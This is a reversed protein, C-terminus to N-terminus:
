VPPELIVLRPLTQGGGATTVNLRYEGSGAFFGARITYEVGAELRIKILSNLGQGGDDDYAIVNGQNDLLWLFPDVNANANTTYIIWYTTEDPIFTFDAEQVVQRSGQTLIEYTPSIHLYVNESRWNAWAEIFYYVDQALHLTIIGSHWEEVWFSGSKDSLILERWDDWDDWDGTLEITWSGTTDPSFLFEFEDEVPIIGGQSPIRTVSSFHDYDWDIDWDWEVDLTPQSGFPILTLMFSFDTVWESNAWIVYEIGEQLSIVTDVDWWSGAETYTVFSGYSDTIIMMIFETAEAKSIVWLGTEDPTFSFHSLDNVQTTGTSIPTRNASLDIDFGWETLLEWEFWPTFTDAPSITLTYSADWANGSITYVEGAVLRTTVNLEESVDGHMMFVVFNGRSDTIDFNIFESTSTVDIEWLGSENPSFSYFITNTGTSVGGNEPILTPVPRAVVPRVFEESMFVTLTYSGRGGWAFGAHIVYPMGEVLHLKVIANNGLATGRDWALEHGYHNLVTLEPVIDESRYSTVFTWYGTANPTFSFYTERNIEVSTYSTATNGDDDSDAAYSVTPAFAIFALVCILTAAYKM